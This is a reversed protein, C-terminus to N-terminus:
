AAEAYEVALNAATKKRDKNYGYWSNFLRKENDRGMKHDVLYTVANFAQWWSGEAFEAGPQTELVAFAEEANRSKFKKDTEGKSTKPFVNNFYEIVNDTTFRKGGLFKAMEKYKEMQEKAAGMTELVYAKDFEKRHNLAIQNLSDSNLSLTLTNNCVVRIPTMRIDIAKGFKHPNTFLLYNDVQDGGFLDFSDKVKALGWVIQGNKLSGATHMEMDGAICFENFFDFAEENQLPNWKDSVIDLFKGDSDRVLAMKDGARVNEGYFLPQRSVSWNLGAAELMQQPSLDAPVRKGLGHWPTEGVYAMQAEGNVIELEHAM